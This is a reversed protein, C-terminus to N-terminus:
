FENRHKILKITGDNNIIYWNKLIMIGVNKTHRFRKETQLYNQEIKNIYEILDCWSTSRHYDGWFGRDNFNRKKFINTSM